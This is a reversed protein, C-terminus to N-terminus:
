SRMVKDSLGAARRVFDLPESFDFNNYVANL